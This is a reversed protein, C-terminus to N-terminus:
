WTSIRDDWEEAYEDALDYVYDYESDWIGDASESSQGDSIGDDDRGHNGKMQCSTCPYGGSVLEETIDEDESPLAAARCYRMLPEQEHRQSCIHQQLRAADDDNFMLEAVAHTDTTRLIENLGKIPDQTVRKIRWDWTLDKYGLPLRAAFCRSPTTHAHATIARSKQALVDKLSGEKATDNEEVPMLAHKPEGLKQPPRTARQATMGYALYSFHTLDLCQENGLRCGPHLSDFFPETVWLFGAVRQLTRLDLAKKDRGVHVHFGCVPPVATRFSARIAKIVKQIEHFSKENAMFSPSTVEVGCYKSFGYDQHVDRSLRLSSDPVVEWMTYQGTVNNKAMKSSQASSRVSLIVEAVKQRIYAAERDEPCYDPWDLEPPLEFHTPVCPVPGYRDDDVFAYYTKTPAASPAAAKPRRDRRYFVIFELEIGYTLNSISTM